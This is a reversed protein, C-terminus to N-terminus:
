CHKRACWVSKLGSVGSYLESSEGRGPVGCM